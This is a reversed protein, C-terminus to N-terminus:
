IKSGTQIRQKSNFYSYYSNQYRELGKRFLLCCVYTVYFRANSHSLQSCLLTSLEVRCATGGTDLTWTQTCTHQVLQLQHPSRQRAGGAAAGYPRRIFGLHTSYFLLCTHPQVVGILFLSSLSEPSWGQVQEKNNPLCTLM